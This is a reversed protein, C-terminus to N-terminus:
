RGCRKVPSSEQETSGFRWTIEMGASLRLVADSLESGLYDLGGGDM